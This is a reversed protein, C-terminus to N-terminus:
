PQEETAQAGRLSRSRGPGAGALRAPSGAQESQFAAVGLPTQATHKLYMDWARQDLQDAKRRLEDDERVLAIERLKDCVALRRLVDAKERNQQIAAVQAPSLQVPASAKTERAPAPAPKAAPKKRFPLLRQYWAPKAPPPEDDDDADQARISGALGLLLVAATGISWRRM